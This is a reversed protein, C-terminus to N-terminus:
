GWPKSCGRSCGPPAQAMSLQRPASSLEWQQRRSGQGREARQRRAGSRQTEGRRTPYSKEQAELDPNPTRRRKETMREESEVLKPSKWRGAGRRSQSKGKGGRKNEQGWGGGEGKFRSHSVPACPLSADWGVRDM